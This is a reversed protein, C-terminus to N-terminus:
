TSRTIQTYNKGHHYACFSSGQAKQHGCYRALLDPHGYGVVERCHRTELQMIHLGGDVPVPEELVMPALRIPKLRPPAPARVRKPRVTIDRAQRMGPAAKKMPLGLRNAKGIVANRTKGMLAGIDKASRTEWLRKLMESEEDTWFLGEPM